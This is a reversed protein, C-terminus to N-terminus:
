QPLRVSGDRGALVRPSRALADRSIRGSQLKSTRFSDAGGRTQPRKFNTSAATYGLARAEGWMTVLFPIPVGPNLLGGPSDVHGSSLTSSGHGLPREIM